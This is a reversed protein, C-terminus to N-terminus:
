TEKNVFWEPKDEALYPKLRDHHAVMPKNRPGSQIKFLVENLREVVLYPGKWPRQLKPNFGVKRKPFYYWVSDGVKYLVKYTKM